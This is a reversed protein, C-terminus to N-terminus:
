GRVKGPEAFPFDALQLDGSIKGSLDQAQGPPLLDSFASLDFNRLAVTGRAHKNRQRSIRFDDIDIQHGFLQGDVHFAGIEKDAQYDALISRLPWPIAM